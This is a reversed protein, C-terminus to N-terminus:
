ISHVSDPHRAKAASGTGHCREVERDLMNDPHRAKAASAQLGVATGM